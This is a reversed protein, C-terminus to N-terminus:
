KQLPVYVPNGKSDYLIRMQPNGQADYLYDSAPVDQTPSAPVVPTQVQASEPQMASVPTEQKVSQPQEYVPQLEQVQTEEVTDMSLTFPPLDALGDDGRPEEVPLPEDGGNQHTDNRVQAAKEKEKETLTVYNQGKKVQILKYVFIEISILVAVVAMIILVILWSPMGNKEKTSGGDTGNGSDSSANGNGNDAAVSGMDANQGAAANEKNVSSPDAAPSLNVAGLIIGDDTNGTVFGTLWALPANWNITCENTSYAEIHDMYCKAAPITGKKWGSGRVWPDEM